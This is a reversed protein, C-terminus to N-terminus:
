EVFLYNILAKGPDQLSTRSLAQRVDFGLLFQAINVAPQNLTNILLQVINQRVLDQKEGNEEYELFSM